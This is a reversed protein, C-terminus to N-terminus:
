EAGQFALLFISFWSDDDILVLSHPVKNVFGFSTGHSSFQKSRKLSIKESKKYCFWCSPSHDIYLKRSSPKELSKGTHSIFFFCSYIFQSQPFWVQKSKRLPSFFCFKRCKNSLDKGFASSIPSESVAPALGCTSLYVMIGDELFRYDFM